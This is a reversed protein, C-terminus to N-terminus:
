NIDLNVVLINLDQKKAAHVADYHRKEGVTKKYPFIRSTKM